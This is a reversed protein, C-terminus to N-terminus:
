APSHTRSLATIQEEPLQETRMFSPESRVSTINSERVLFFEGTGQAALKDAAGNRAALMPKLKEIARPEKVRGILWTRVNEKCKYDFDGPSQTALFLGVGASRARKLLDEMPAKTAPQRLAPLYLDAEDFLFVAQLHPQPSKACWRVVAALLQSVWFDTRAADGLFRTSIISLRVRGPQAYSGTGLLADVDLREDGNLLQRNNLELTLLREGLTKFYKEPYGGGIANVLDDDQREIVDRLTRVTIEAGGAAALTEIAKALIAKQGKDADSSKFGVMSGLAGAAYQAFRERDCESLQSFGAPVVPLALPRGEPAGPTYLAVDLREHLAQRAAARGPNDLPRNWATHDAYRCLDGKRDVLVAPIDRALLQEILNLAATTKGSGSGGIFAAHQMFENPEFTVSNQTLGTTHGLTIAVSGTDARSEMEPVRRVVDPPLAPSPQVTTHKVLPLACLKLIKQLSGLEGLPRARLQWASFESRNAHATRFADFALMRRLDSDAVVIREGQRKLMGAIQKVAKGTKPFDTTRVIAVPIEGARQELESIQQGFKPSRTSANCVGVLVKDISNDPKHIEVQLFRGDVPECGFHYGDPLEATTAGIADRLVGALGNEEDPVTASFTSHFDNWLEDLAHGSSAPLAVPDSGAAVPELWRGAAICRQHHRRLYDLADRTRMGKLPVLHDEGFPYLEDARDNEVEASDYLYCLRRATMELIEEVTRNGLLRVPEPDRVLRDHKSRTLQNLNSKFYDELCALVVVTNPLNDTFATIADVVKRFRDVPASQNAMDELQDILLILPIGEVADTLRALQNLMRLPDADDTRPVADSIWNRDQPRMEQCRLWMLARSRVQPEHRELHLMVRLFELDCNQFRETEHLRDAYGDVLEASDCAGERFSEIEASSLGPISELLAASMRALGTRSPGDPAYPQELSDILNALMYRAYNGVETTMQLYACYGWGRAHARTRFARMLHTKGSGAEGLLVLVSGSPPPPNRSGRHLLREFAARAEAHITEVDYPDYKWIETPTAVSHFVEPCDPALFAQLRPDAVPADVPIVASIM